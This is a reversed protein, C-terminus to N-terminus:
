PSQPEPTPKAHCSRPRVPPHVAGFLRSVPGRSATISRQVPGTQQATTERLSRFQRLRPRPGYAIQSTRMSAPRRHSVQQRDHASM